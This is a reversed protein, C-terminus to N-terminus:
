VKKMYWIQGYCIKFFKFIKEYDFKLERELFIMLWIKKKFYKFEKEVNFELSEKLRM